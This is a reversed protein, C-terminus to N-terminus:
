LKKSQLNVTNSQSYLDTIEVIPYEILHLFSKVRVSRAPKAINKTM